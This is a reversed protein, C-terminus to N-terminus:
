VNHKLNPSGQLLHRTYRPAWNFYTTFSHAHSHKRARERPVRSSLPGAGGPGPNWIGSFCLATTAKIIVSSAHGWRGKQEGKTDRPLPGLSLCSSSLVLSAQVQGCLDNCGTPMEAQPRPGASANTNNTWKSSPVYTTYKVTKCIYLSSQWIATLSSYPHTMMPYYCVNNPFYLLVKLNINWFM